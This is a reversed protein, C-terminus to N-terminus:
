LRSVVVLVTSALRDRRDTREVRAVTLLKTSGSLRDAIAAKEKSTKMAQELQKAVQASLRGFHPAAGNSLRM